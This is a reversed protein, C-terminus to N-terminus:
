APPAAAASVLDPTPLGSAAEIDAGYTDCMYRWQEYFRKDSRGLWDVLGEYHKWTDVTLYALHKNAVQRDLFGANYETAVLEYFNMAATIPWKEDLGIDKWQAEAAPLDHNFLRLLAFGEGAHAIFDSDYYASLLEYTRRRQEVRRQEDIQDKIGKAAVEVSDRAIKGARVAAYLLGVTALAGIATAWDGFSDGSM